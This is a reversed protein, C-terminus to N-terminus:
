TKDPNSPAKKANPNYIKAGKELWNLRGGTFAAIFEPRDNDYTLTDELLVASQAKWHAYQYSFLKRALSRNLKNQSDLTYLLYFFSLVRYAEFADAAVEEVAFFQSWM